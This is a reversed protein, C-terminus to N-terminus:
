FVWLFGFWYPRGAGQGQGWLMPSICVWTPGHRCSAKFFHLYDLSVNTNKLKVILDDFCHVVGVLIPIEGIIKQQSSCFVGALPTVQRQFLSIVYRIEKCSSVLESLSPDITPPLVGQGPSNLHTYLRQGEM